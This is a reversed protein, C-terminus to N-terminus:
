LQIVYSRSFLDLWGFFHVSMCCLQLASVVYFFSQKALCLCSLPVSLLLATNGHVATEDKNPSTMVTYRASKFSVLAFALEFLNCSPGSYWTGYKSSVQEGFWANGCWTNRSALGFHWTPTVCLFHLNAFGDLCKFAHAFGHKFFVCCM